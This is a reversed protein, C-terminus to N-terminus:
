LVFNIGGPIHAGRNYITGSNPLQALTPQGSEICGFELDKNNAEVNTYIKKVTSEKKKNPVIGQM